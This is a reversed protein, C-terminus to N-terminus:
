HKAAAKKRDRKRKPKDTANAPLTTPTLGRAREFDRIRELARGRPFQQEDSDATTKTTKSGTSKRKASKPRRM